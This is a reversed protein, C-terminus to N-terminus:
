ALPLLRVKAATNEHLLARRHHDLSIEFRDLAFDVYQLFLDVINIRLDLLGFTFITAAFTLSELWKQLQILLLLSGDNSEGARDSAPPNRQVLHLRVTGYEAIRGEANKQRIPRRAADENM